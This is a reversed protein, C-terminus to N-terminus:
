AEPLASTEQPLGERLSSAPDLSREARVHRPM